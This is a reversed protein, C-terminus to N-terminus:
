SLSMVHWRHVVAVTVAAAVEKLLAQCLVRHHHLIIIISHPLPFFFFVNLAYFLLSNFVRILLFAIPVITQLNQSNRVQELPQMMHNDVSGGSVVGRSGGDGYKKRMEELANVLKMAPSSLVIRDQETDQDQTPIAIGSPSSILRSTLDIEMPYDCLAHDKKISTGTKSWLIKLQIL